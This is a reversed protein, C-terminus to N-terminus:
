SCIEVIERNLMHRTKKKKVSTCSEECKLTYKGNM